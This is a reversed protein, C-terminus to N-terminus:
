LFPELISFDQLLISGNGAWKLFTATNAGSNRDLQQQELNNQRGLRQICQPTIRYPGGSNRVARLPESLPEHETSEHRSKESKLVLFLSSIHTDSTSWDLNCTWQFVKLIASSNFANLQFIWHQVLDPAWRM